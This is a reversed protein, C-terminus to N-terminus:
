FRPRALKKFEVQIEKTELHRPRYL